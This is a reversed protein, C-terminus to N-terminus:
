SKWHIQRNVFCTTRMSSMIIKYQYSDWQNHCNLRMNNSSMRATLTVLSEYDYDDVWKADHKWLSRTVTEDASRAGQYRWQSICNAAAWGDDTMTTVNKFNEPILEFDLRCPRRLKRLITHRSVRSRQHPKIASITKLYPFTSLENTSLTHTQESWSVM